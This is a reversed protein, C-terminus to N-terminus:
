NVPSMQIAEILFSFGPITRLFATISSKIQLAKSAQAGRPFSNTYAAVDLADQDSLTSKNIPMFRRIFASSFCIMAMPSNESYSDPGLVPPAMTGGARGAGDAGHCSACERMYVAKGRETSARPTSRTGTPIGDLFRFQRGRPSAGIPLGQALFRSYAVLALIEPSNDAPPAAAGMSSTFCTQTAKLLTGDGARAAYAAWLPAAYPARGADLHCNSCNLTNKVFGPANAASNIVIEYGKKVLAAETPPLKAIEALPPPQYFAPIPELNSDATEALALCFPHCVLCLWLPFGKRLTNLRYRHFASVGLTKWRSPRKRTSNFASNKAECDILGSQSSDQRDESAM